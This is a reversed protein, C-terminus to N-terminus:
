CIRRQGGVSYRDLEQGEPRYGMRDGTHPDNLRRHALERRRKMRYLLFVLVFAAIAGFASVVGFHADQRSKGDAMAGM